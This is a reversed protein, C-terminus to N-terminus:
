PTPGGFRHASPAILEVAFALLLFGFALITCVAVRRGRLHLGYRLYLLVAFVIWVAATALVKSDTWALEGTHILLLVGILLGGTFLPFALNIARRNMAELRELSLLRIGEGPPAKHKLKWAQVLYMVSAVFAVSLGVAGLVLLAFHLWAWWAVPPPTVVPAEVTERLVWAVVVLVLVVPLVFLGWAERRHHLAGSLYFVALVWAVFLLSSPAGTLPQAHYFLYITHAILGAMAAVLTLARRVPGLRAPSLLELGLAVAYSAAFCFITIREVPM